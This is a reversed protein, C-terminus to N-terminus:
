YALRHANQYRAAATENAAVKNAVNQFMVLRSVERIDIDQGVGAVEGVELAHGLLVAIAVFEELGIDSMGVLHILQHGLVLEVGNNIERGFGMDIATNIRRLIEDVGIHNAGTHQEITGAPM